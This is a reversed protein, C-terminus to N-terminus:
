RSAFRAGTVDDRQIAALVPKRARLRAPPTRRSELARQLTGAAAADAPSSCARLPHTCQSGLSCHGSVRERKREKARKRESSRERERESARARERERERM